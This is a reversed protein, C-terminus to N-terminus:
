KDIIGLATAPSTAVKERETSSTGSPPDDYACASRRGGSAPGFLGTAGFSTQAPPAPRSLPRLGKLWLRAAEVHIAGMVKLGLMPVAICCALLARTSLRRRAAAFTALLIMGREDREGIRLFLSQAPTKLFFEYRMAMGLFPSVYLLKDRAQRLGTADLEDPAVRAAYTHRQSFTNHVEYLICSPRGTRDFVYYVSLPNFAYGLVRPYCLLTIKSIDGEVGALRALERAQVSLATGDGRGHDREHFSVLNGRNVGFLPSLADAEDLRDLDILLSFVRYRFRHAVPRSRAHMVHGDYLSAPPEAPGLALHNQTSGDDGELKNPQAHAKGLLPAWKKADHGLPVGQPHETM